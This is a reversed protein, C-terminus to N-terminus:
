LNKMVEVFDDLKYSGKGIEKDKFVMFYRYRGGMAAQWARGLSLKTKSDDGGKPSWWFSMKLDKIEDRYQSQIRYQKLMSGMGGWSFGTYNMENEAFEEEYDAATQEATGVIDAVEPVAKGGDSVPSISVMAPDVDEFSDTSEGPGSTGNKQVAAEVALGIESGGVATNSDTNQYDNIPAQEGSFSNDSAQPALEEADGLRFEKRSFGANNLGALISDITERFDRSCTFVYSSNLLTGAHRKTYPQRLIRGWM